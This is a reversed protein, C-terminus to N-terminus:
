RRTVSCTSTFPGAHRCITSAITPRGSISPSWHDQAYDPRSTLGALPLILVLVVLVTWSPRVSAPEAQFYVFYALGLAVVAFWWVPTLELWSFGAFVIIGAISGLINLTYAEVRNPLRKLARGLEQGPGVMVLAIMLFFFGAVLEVPIQTQTVDGSEPETGFYVFEPSSLQNGVNLRQELTGRLLNVALAAGLAVGLVYPAWALYDRRHGVALCGLSMGLFCALLVTNTFFTLYLVHAPFWRICALELFLLLVSILFLDLRARLPTCPKGELAPPTCPKGELASPESSM